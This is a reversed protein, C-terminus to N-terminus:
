VYIILKEKNEKADLNYDAFNKLYETGKTGLADQGVVKGGSDIFKKVGSHGLLHAMAIMGSKTIKIGGITQGEYKHYDKLYGWSKKHYARVANNQAVVNKM